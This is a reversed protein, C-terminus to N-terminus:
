ILENKLALWEPIAVTVDKDGKEISEGGEEIQSKPIWYPEEVIMFKIAAETVHDVTDFTIEVYEQSSMM